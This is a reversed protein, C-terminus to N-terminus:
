MSRDQFDNPTPASARTLNMESFPYLPRSTTTPETTEVVSASGVTASPREISFGFGREFSFSRNGGNDIRELIGFPMGVLTYAQNPPHIESLFPNPSTAIKKQM